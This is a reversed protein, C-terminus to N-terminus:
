LHWRRVGRAARPPWRVCFGFPLTCVVPQQWPLFILCSSYLRVRGFVHLQYPWKRRGRLVNGTPVPWVVGNLWFVVGLRLVVALLGACLHLQLLKYLQERRVCQDYRRPM